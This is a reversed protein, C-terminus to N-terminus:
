RVYDEFVQFAERLAQSVMQAVRRANLAQGAARLRKCAASVTEKIYDRVEKLRALGTEASPAKDQIAQGVDLRFRHYIDLAVYREIAFLRQDESLNLLDADPFRNLLESLANKIAARGAEADQTGDAPRVAEVLADMIESATRGALLAPDYPSGPAAPQGATTSALAGYLAGATRATGAMRRSASGAGGLGKGVYHGVGRRMDNASGSRAYRGLSIRAPGFRGAPALPVPQTAAPPAPGPQQDAADADSADTGDAPVVDPVWPPVLPVGPPAGPSSASTGM